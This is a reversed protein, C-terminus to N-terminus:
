FHRNEDMFNVQNIRLTVSDTKRGREKIETKREGRSRRQLWSAPECKAM